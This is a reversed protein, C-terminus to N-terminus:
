INKPNMYYTFANKEELYEKVDMYFFNRYGNDVEGESLSISCKPSDSIFQQLTLDIFYEVGNLTYSMWYHEWFGFNGAIIRLNGKLKTESLLMSVYLCSYECMGSCDTKYDGIVEENESKLWEMFHEPDLEFDLDSEIFNMHPPPSDWQNTNMKRLTEAFDIENTEDYGFIDIM